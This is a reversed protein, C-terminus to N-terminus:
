YSQFSTFVITVEIAMCGGQGLNPQMAHASDGLLTTRGRSWNFIPVRDFIDRRLIMEEPTALLLDKVGDCWNAFLQLLRDKKEASL